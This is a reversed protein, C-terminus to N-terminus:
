PFIGLERAANEIESWAVVHCGATVTGDIAIADIKFNGLPISHGNTHWETAAERCKRVVQFARKAHAVPFEAGRSTQVTDGKIRLMTEDPAENWGWQVPKGARWAGVKDAMTAAYERDHAAHDDATFTSALGWDQSRMSHHSGERYEALTRANRAQDQERRRADREASRARKKATRAKVTELVDAPIEPM